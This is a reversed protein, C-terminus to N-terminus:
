IEDRRLNLKLHKLKAILADILTLAKNTEKDIIEEGINAVDNHYDNILSNVSKLQTETM